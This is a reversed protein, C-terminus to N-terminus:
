VAGEGMTATVFAADQRDILRMDVGAHLVTWLSYMAWGYGGVAALAGVVSLVAVRRCFREWSRDFEIDRM